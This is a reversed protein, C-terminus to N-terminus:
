FTPQPSDTLGQQAWINPFIDLIDWCCCRLIIYSMIIIFGFIAINGCVYTWRYPTMCINPCKLDMHSCKWLGIPKRQDACPTATPYSIVNSFYGLDTYSLLFFQGCIASRVFYGDQCSCFGQQCSAFSGGDCVDNDRCRQNLPVLPVIPSLIVMPSLVILDHSYIILPSYSNLHGCSILHGYFVLHGYLLYSSWQLYSSWLSLIVIPSLIVMPSWIVM